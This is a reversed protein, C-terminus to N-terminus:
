SSFDRECKLVLMQGACVFGQNWLLVLCASLLWPVPHASPYLCRGALRVVRAQDGSDVHSPSLWSGCVTGPRCLFCFGFKKFGELGLM